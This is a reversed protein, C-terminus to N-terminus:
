CRYYGAGLLFLPILVYASHERFIPLQAVLVEWCIESATTGSQLHPLLPWPVKGEGLSDTLQLVLKDRVTLYLSAKRLHPNSEQTLFIGQLLFHSGM